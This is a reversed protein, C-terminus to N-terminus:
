RRRRSRNRTRAEVRRMGDVRYYPRESFPVDVSENDLTVRISVTMASALGADGQRKWKAHIRARAFSAVAECFQVLADESFTKGPTPERTMVFDMSDSETKMMEAYLENENVMREPTM